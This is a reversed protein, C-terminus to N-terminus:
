PYSSGALTTSPEQMLQWPGLITCRSRKVGFTFEAQVQSLIERNDNSPTNSVRDHVGLNTLGSM